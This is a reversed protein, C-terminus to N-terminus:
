LSGSLKGPMQHLLNNSNNQISQYGTNMTNDGVIYQIM